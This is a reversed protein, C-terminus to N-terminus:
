NEEASICLIACFKYLILHFSSPISCIAISSLEISCLIKFPQSWKILKLSRMKSFISMYFKRFVHGSIKFKALAYVYVYLFIEVYGVVIVSSGKVFVCIHLYTISKIEKRNTRTYFYLLHTARM